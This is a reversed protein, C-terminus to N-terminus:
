KLYLSQESRGLTVVVGWVMVVHFILLYISAQTNQHFAVVTLPALWGSSFLLSSIIYQCVRLGTPSCVALITIFHTGGKIM